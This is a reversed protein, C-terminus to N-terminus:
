RTQRQWARMVTFRTLYTASCTAAVAPRRASSRVHASSAVAPLCIDAGSCVYAVKLKDAGSRVVTVSGSM